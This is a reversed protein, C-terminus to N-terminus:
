DASRVIEWMITTDRAFAVGDATSLTFFNGPSITAVEVPQGFGSNQRVHSQLAFRLISDSGVVTSSVTVTASGSSLTTRGAFQNAKSAVSMVAPGLFGPGYLTEIPNPM